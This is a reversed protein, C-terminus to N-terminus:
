VQNGMLEQSQHCIIHAEGLVGKLSLVLEDVSELFKLYSSVAVCFKRYNIDRVLDKSLEVAGTRMDTDANANM